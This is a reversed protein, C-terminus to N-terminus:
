ARVDILVCVVFEIFLKGIGILSASGLSRFYDETHTVRIPKSSLDISPGHMGVFGKDSALFLAVRAIYLDKYAPGFQYFM